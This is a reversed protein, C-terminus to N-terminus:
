LRMGKKEIFGIYLKMLSKFDVNFNLTKLIRKLIGKAFKFSYKGLLYVAFVVWAFIVVVAEIPGYIWCIIIEKEISNTVYYKNTNHKYFLSHLDLEYKRMLVISMAALHILNIIFGLLWILIIKLVIEFITLFLM